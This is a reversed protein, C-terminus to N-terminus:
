YNYDQRFQNECNKVTYIELLKKEDLGTLIFCRVLYQFVQILASYLKEFNIEPSPKKWHKWSIEKRVQSMGNLILSSQVLIANDIESKSLEQLQGNNIQNLYNRENVFVSHLPNNSGNIGGFMLEYTEVIDLSTMGAVLFEDMLFHWIDIFEKQLEYHDDKPEIGPFVSLHEQAEAVEDTICVDYALIWHDMEEKTLNDIKHFKKAFVKQLGMMVQLSDGSPDVGLEQIKEEIAGPEQVKLYALYKPCVKIDCDGDCYPCIVSESM